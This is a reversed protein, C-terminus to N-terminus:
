QWFSQIKQKIADSVQDITGNADVVAFKEPNDSAQKLFMRRVKNHYEVTRSEIRDAGNERTARALGHDSDLDLIITLDPMTKGVALKAAAKINEIDAGLAGQYAITSSIYRDALVCKNSQLAPRVIQHVLQARSAMYLLMECEVGMHESKKDLLIERVRDSIHTGGPDRVTMVDVGLSEIFQALKLVQTSKGSGDPGDLVIFKGGLKDALNKESDNM